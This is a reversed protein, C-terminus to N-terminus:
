TSNCQVEPSGTDNNNRGFIAIVRATNFKEIGAKNSNELCLIRRMIEAREESSLAGDVQSHSINALKVKSAFKPTTRLLFDINKPTLGYQYYPGQVAVSDPNDLKPISNKPM